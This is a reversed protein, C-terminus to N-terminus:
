FETEGSEERVKKAWSPSVWPVDGEDFREVPRKYTVIEEWSKSGKELMEM